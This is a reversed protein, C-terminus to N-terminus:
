SMVVIGPLGQAGLGARKRPASGLAFPTPPRARAEARGEGLTSPTTRHRPRRNGRPAPVPTAPEPGRRSGPGTRGGGAFIGLILDPALPRRRSRCCPRSSFLAPPPDAGRSSLDPRTQRRSSLGPGPGLGPGPCHSRLDQSEPPPPRPGHASDGAENGASTVPQADPRAGPIVNAADRQRLFRGGM